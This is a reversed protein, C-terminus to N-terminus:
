GVYHGNECAGHNLGFLAQLGFCPQLVADVVAAAGAATTPLAVGASTAGWWDQSIGVGALTGGVVGLSIDVPTAHNRTKYVHVHLPHHHHDYRTAQAGTATLTAAM